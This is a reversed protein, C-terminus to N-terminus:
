RTGPSPEDMVDGVVLEIDKVARSCGVDIRRETRHAALKGASKLCLVEVIMTAM